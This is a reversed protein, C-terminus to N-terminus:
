RGGGGGGKQKLSERPGQRGEGKREGGEGGGGVGEWPAVHCTM